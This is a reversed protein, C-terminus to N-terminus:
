YNEKKTKKYIDSILNTDQIFETDLSKGASWYVKEVGKVTTRGAFPTYTITHCGEGECDECVVAEGKKEAFGQYVGSGNCTDCRARVMIDSESPAIKRVKLPTPKQAM